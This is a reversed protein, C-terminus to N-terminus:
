GAIAAVVLATMVWDPLGLPAFTVEGIQLLVWAVLAYAIIVPYVRRRLMEASFGALFSRKRDRM